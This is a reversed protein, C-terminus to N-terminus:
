DQPVEVLAAAPIAAQVTRNDNDFWTVVSCEEGDDRRINGVVTLCRVRDGKLQVVNGIKFKTMEIIAALEGNIGGFIGQKNSM